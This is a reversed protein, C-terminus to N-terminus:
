TLIQLLDEIPGLVDQQPSVMLFNIKQNDNRKQRAFPGSDTLASRNSIKATDIANGNGTTMNRRDDKYTSHKACHQRLVYWGSIM